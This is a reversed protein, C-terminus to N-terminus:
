WCDPLFAKARGCAKKLRLYPRGLKIRRASRFPSWEMAVVIANALGGPDNPLREIRLAAITAGEGRGARAIM